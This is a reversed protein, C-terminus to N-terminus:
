FDLGLGSGPGAGRRGEDSREVVPQRATQVLELWAGSLETAARGLVLVADGIRASDGVLLALHGRDLEIGWRKCIKKGMREQDWSLEDSFSQMQIQGWTEGYDTVLFCSDRPEVFVDILDGDPYLFPTRVQVARLQTLSCEFSEGLTGQLFEHLSAPKM